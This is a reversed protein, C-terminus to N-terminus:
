KGDEDTGTTQTEFEHSLLQQAGRTVVHDGVKLAGALMLYGSTTPRDTFVRVRLYHRPARELYVWALANWQVIADNPVFLMQAGSPMSAGAGAGRDRGTAIVPLGPRAGPWGGIFRYLYVPSRTVSDVEAGISVLRATVGVTAGSAPSVSLTAPAAGLESRWIIRALSAGFDTLQLLEQGAQVLEGPQAGVHTVTGARPTVLPKADSVQGIVQGAGITQGLTPWSSSVLRGPLAARITTLRSPDAVLEGQVQRLGVGPQENASRAEAASRLVVTAIEARVAEGADLVIENDRERKAAQHTGKAADADGDAEIGRRSLGIWIVAGLAVLIAASFLVHRRHTGRNEAQTIM